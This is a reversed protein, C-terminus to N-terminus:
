RFWCKRNKCYIKSQKKMETEVETETEETETSATEATIFNPTIVGALSLAMTRGNGEVNLNAYIEFTQSQSKPIKIIKRFPIEVFDNTNLKRKFSKFDDETEAWIKGFDSFSSLGKRTLQFGSILIDEDIASIKIKLFPIRVGNKPLYQNISQYSDIKMEASVTPIECISLISFLFVLYIKKM